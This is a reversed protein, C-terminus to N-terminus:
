FRIKEKQLPYCTGYNKGIVKRKVLTIEDLIPVYNLGFLKMNMKNAINAFTAAGLKIDVTVHQTLIGWRKEM